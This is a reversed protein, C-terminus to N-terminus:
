KRTRLVVFDFSDARFYEEAYVLPKGLVDNLTLRFKMLLTDVSINLYKSLKKDAKAPILETRCIGIPIGCQNEIFDYISTNEDTSELFPRAIRESLYDTTYVVPVNNALRVRSCVLVQDGVQVGLYKSLMEDAPIFKKSFGAVGPTFGTARIMETVGSNYNLVNEINDMDCAVYTGKGQIAYIRGETKLGNLAERLKLRSIGLIQSLETESPLQDGVKLGVEKIYNRIIQHLDEYNAM